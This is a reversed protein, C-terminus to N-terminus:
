KISRSARVGKRGLVRTVLDEKGRTMSNVLDGKISRHIKSPWYDPYGRDIFVKEAKVTTLAQLFKHDTAAVTRKGHFRMNVTKLSKGYKGLLILLSFLHNDNVFRRDDAFLGPTDSISADEFHLTISRLLGINCNDIDGLFRYVDAWGVETWNNDWYNGRRRACRELHFHNEGYLITRGEEHIQKCTALFASSRSFNTGRGFDVKTGKGGAMLLRYVKNRLESPLSLFGVKSSKDEGVVTFVHKIAQPAHLIFSVNKDDFTQSKQLVLSALDFNLVIRGSYGEPLGRRLNEVILHVQPEQEPQDEEASYMTISAIKATGLELQSPLKKLRKIEHSEGDHNKRKSGTPEEDSSQVTMAAIPPSVITFTTITSDSSPLSLSNHNFSRRAFLPKPPMPALIPSPSRERRKTKYKHQNKMMAKRVSGPTYEEDSSEVITKKHRRGSSYFVEEVEDFDINSLLSDTDKRSSLSDLDEIHRNKHIIFDIPENYTINVLAEDYNMFSMGASESPANLLLSHLRSSRRLLNM